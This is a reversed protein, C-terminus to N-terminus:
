EVELGKEQAVKKMIKLPSECVLCSYGKLCRKGCKIRREAFFNLVASNLPGKSKFDIILDGLFGFWSKRKYIDLTKKQTYEQGEKSYIHCVDVYQKYFDIDEPRVFFKKMDDSEAVASQAVNPYIWIEINMPAILDHITKLEFGMEEAIYMAKVGKSAFLTLADWSTVVDTFFFCIHNEKIRELTHALVASYFRLTLNYKFYKNCLNIINDL